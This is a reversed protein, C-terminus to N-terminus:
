LNYSANLAGLVFALGANYLISTDNVSAADEKDVYSRAELGPPTVGDGPEANPGGVMLGPVVKKKAMSLWHRPHAVSAQGLGTVYVKGMPNMGFLYHLSRTAADRYKEEGSMRYADLLVAVSEVVQENSRSTFHRVSVGYPNGEIRSVLGNALGLVKENIYADAQANRTEGGYLVYDTLGLIAPNRWSFAEVPVKQYNALFYRLYEPKRTSLYLESAAWVRYALDEGPKELKVYDKAGDRNLTGADVVQERWPLSQQTLYGWGREAAILTKVAYGLDKKKYARSAMALSAVAAATDQTTVGYIHRTDLDEEPRLIEGPTKTSVKRYFGGDQRQMVMLWDLGTRMEHLLDNVDGKASESVPYDLNFYQFPKQGWEYMALMKALALSTVTTQKAYDGGDHWGGAVDKFESVTGGTIEPTIEGDNTHCPLLKFDSVPDEIALGCRQLYFSRVVPKLTDWYLFDSVKVPQSLENTGEIKLQYVGPMTFESFDVLIKSTGPGMRSSDKFERIIKPEFMTREKQYFSLNKKDTSILQIKLNKQALVDEPVEELLVLKPAASHYGTEDLRFRIAEAALGSWSLLVGAM